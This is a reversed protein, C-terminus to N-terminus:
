HQPFELAWQTECSRRLAQYLDDWPALGARNLIAELGRHLNNRSLTVIRESREPAADFADQLTQFLRPVIPVIRTTRTKSAFVSLRRRDWDVDAWTLRHTESPTRLGALRALGFLVRWRLDGCADLVAAAEEPTVYRGRDAAVASSKLSKFPNRSLLDREV